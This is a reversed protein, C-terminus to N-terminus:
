GVKSSFKSGADSAAVLSANAGTSHTVITVKQCEDIQNRSAIITDVMSNIDERGIEEYSFNWYNFKQEPVTRDITAHNLTYERGRTCGIWVDYGSMALQVPLAPTTEDTRNFFDMPDSFMGHLLLMPGKTPVLPAGTPDATIRFMVIEYGSATTVPYSEWAFNIGEIAM